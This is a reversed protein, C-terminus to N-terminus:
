HVFNLPEYERQPVLYADEKVLLNPLADLARATTEAAVGYATHAIAGRAHVWPTFHTPGPTLKFAKLMVEDALLFFGLGFPIGYAAGAKPFRNRMALYQLGGM